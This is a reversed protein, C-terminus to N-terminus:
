MLNEYVEEHDMLNSVVLADMNKGDHTAIKDKAYRADLSHTIALVKRDILLHRELQRILETSKGAFMPGIILSLSGTPIHLQM